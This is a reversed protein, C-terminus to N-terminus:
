DKDNKNWGRMEFYKPLMIDLFRRFEPKSIIYIMSVKSDKYINYLEDMITDDIKKSITEVAMNCQARIFMDSEEVIQLDNNVPLHIAGFLKNKRKKM